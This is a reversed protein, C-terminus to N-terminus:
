SSATCQTTRKHRQVSGPDGLWNRGLQLVDVREVNDVYMTVTFVTAYGGGCPRHVSLESWRMPACVPVASATM